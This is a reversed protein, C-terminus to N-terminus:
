FLHKVGGMVIQRAREAGGVEDANSCRARVFSIESASTEVFFSTLPAPAWRPQRERLFV